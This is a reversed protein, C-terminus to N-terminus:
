YASGLVVLLKAASGLFAKPLARARVRVPRLVSRRELVWGRFFCRRAPVCLKAEGARVCARVFSVFVIEWNPSSASKKGAVESSGYFM